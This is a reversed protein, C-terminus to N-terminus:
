QRRADFTTYMLAEVQGHFQAEDSCYRRKNDGRICGVAEIGGKVRENDAIGRSWVM